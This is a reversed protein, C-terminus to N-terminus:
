RCIMAHWIEFAFSVSYAGTLLFAIMIAATGIHTMVLYQYAANWTSRLEAEHNVLLFSAVAMIEWFLLFSFADGAILVLVMSLLFLNWMGGLMRLRKGAYGRGYGAAYISTIM